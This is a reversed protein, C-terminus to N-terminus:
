SVARDAGAGNHIVSMFRTNQLSKTKMTLSSQTLKAKRQSDVKFLFDESQLKHCPKLFIARATDIDDVKGDNAECVIDRSLKM